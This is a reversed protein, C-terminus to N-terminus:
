AECPQTRGTALGTAAFHATSYKFLKLDPPAQNKTTPMLYGNADRNYYEKGIKIYTNDEACVREEWAVRPTTERKYTKMVTWPRTLKGDTVTIDDHLLNRDAKDLYLREKIVSDDTLTLGSDDYVRPGKFNRTEVELTDFKGDGDTDLWKGISYGIFAPEADDPFKRDDTFIRRVQDTVHEILIYTTEPFVLIEFPAYGTMVMPMGPALCTVAPTDTKGGEAIHKLVADFEAQFEAKLPAEQARGPPKSPDFRPEGPTARQWAGAFDPYNAEDFARAPAAMLALTAALGFAGLLRKTQM